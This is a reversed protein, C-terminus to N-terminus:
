FAGAVPLDRAMGRLLQIEEDQKKQAWWEELKALEVAVRELDVGAQELAEGIPLDEGFYESAQTCLLVASDLTECEGAACLASAMRWLASREFPGISHLLSRCSRKFFWQGRVVANARIPLAQVDEVGVINEIWVDRVNGDEGRVSVKYKSEGEPLLGGIVHDGTRLALAVAPEDVGREKGAKRVEQVKELVTM